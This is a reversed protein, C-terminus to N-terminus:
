GKQLKKIRGSTVVSRGATRQQIEVLGACLARRSADERAGRSVLVLVGGGKVAATWGALDAPTPADSVAVLAGPEGSDAVARGAEVLVEALPVSGVVRVPSADGLAEAVLRGRGRWRVRAILGM